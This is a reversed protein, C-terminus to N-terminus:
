PESEVEGFFSMVQRTRIHRAERAQVPTAPTPTLGLSYVATLTLPAQGRTNCALGPDSLLRPPEIQPMRNPSNSAERAASLLVLSVKDGSFTDRAPLTEDDVAIGLDFEHESGKNIDTEDDVHLSISV